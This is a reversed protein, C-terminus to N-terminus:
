KSERIPKLDQIEGPVGDKTDRVAIYTRNIQGTTSSRFIMRGTPKLPEGVPVNRFNIEDSM